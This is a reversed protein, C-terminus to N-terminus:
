FPGVLDKARIEPRFTPYGVMLEGCSSRMRAQALIFLRLDGSAGHLNLAVWPSKQLRWQFCGTRNKTVPGAAGTM